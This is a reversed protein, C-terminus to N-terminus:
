TLSLLAARRFGKFGSTADHIGLGLISRAFLLGRPECGTSVIALQDNGFWRRITVRHRYLRGSASRDPAPHADAPNHSLDADMQIIVDRGSALAARFGDVYASALGSKSGPSDGLGTRRERSCHRRSDRGNRRTFQLRCNLVSVGSHILLRRLLDGLNEAENYTPVVVVANVSPLGSYEGTPILLQAESFPDMLTHFTHNEKM